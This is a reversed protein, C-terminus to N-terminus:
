QASCPLEDKLEAMTDWTHMPTIPACVEQLQLEASVISHTGHRAVADHQHFNQIGDSQKRGCQLDVHVLSILFERVYSCSPLLDLLSSRLYLKPGYDDSQQLGINFEQM